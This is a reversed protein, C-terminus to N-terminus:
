KNVSPDIRLFREVKQVVYLVGHSTDVEVSYSSELIYDVGLRAGSSAHGVSKNRRKGAMAIIVAHDKKEWIRKIDPRRFYEGFDRFGYCAGKTGFFTGVMVMGNKGHCLGNGIADNILDMFSNPIIHDKDEDISWKFIPRYFDALTSYVGMMLPGSSSLPTAIYYLEHKRISAKGDDEFGIDELINKPPRFLVLDVMCLFM